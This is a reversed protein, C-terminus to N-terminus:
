SVTSSFVPRGLFSCVSHRLSITRRKILYQFIVIVPASEHFIYGTRLIIFSESNWAKLSLFYAIASVLSGSIVQLAFLRLCRPLLLNDLTM